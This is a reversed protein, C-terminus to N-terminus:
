DLESVARTVVLSNTWVISIMYFNVHISIVIRNAWILRFTAPSHYTKREHAQLSCFSHFIFIVISKWESIVVDIESARFADLLLLKVDTEDGFDSSKSISALSLSRIYKKHTHINQSNKKM